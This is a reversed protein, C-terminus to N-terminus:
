KREVSLTLVEKSDERKMSMMIGEVDGEMSRTLGDRERNAM